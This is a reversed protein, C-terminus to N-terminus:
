AFDEPVAGLFKEFFNQPFGSKRFIKKLEGNIYDIQSGDKVKKAQEFFLSKHNGLFLLLRKEGFGFVEHLTICVMKIYLDLVIRGDKELQENALNRSMDIISKQQAPTMTKFAKPVRVNM